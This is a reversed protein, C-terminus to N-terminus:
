RGCHTRKAQGHATTVVRQVGSLLRFPWVKVIEITLRNAETPPLAPSRFLSTAFPRETSWVGKRLLSLKSIRLSAWLSRFVAWNRQWVGDTTSNRAIAGQLVRERRETVTSPRHQRNCLCFNGFVCFIFLHIFIM